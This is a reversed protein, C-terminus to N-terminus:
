ILRLWNERSGYVTADSSLKVTDGVALSIATTSDSIATGQETTIYTDFGAAKLKAANADMNEKKSYAGVQIKFFHITPAITPPRAFALARGIMQIVM